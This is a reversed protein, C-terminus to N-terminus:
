MLTLHYLIFTTMILTSIYIDVFPIDELSWNELGQIYLWSHCKSTHYVNKNSRQASPYYSNYKTLDVSLGSGTRDGGQDDPIWNPPHPFLNFIQAAKLSRFIEPVNTRMVDNNLEGTQVSSFCSPDQFIVTLKVWYYDRQLQWALHPINALANEYPRLFKTHLWYGPVHM